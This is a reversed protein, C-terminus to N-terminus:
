VMCFIEKDVINSYNNEYFKKDEFDKDLVLKDGEMYYFFVGGRLLDDWTYRVAGEPNSRALALAQEQTAAIVLLPNQGALNVARLAYIKEKDVLRPAAVMYSTGVKSLIPYNGNADWVSNPWMKKLQIWLQNAAVMRLLHVSDWMRYRANLIEAGKKGLTYLPPCRDSTYEDLYGKAALRKLVRATNACGTIVSILHRSLVGCQGIATLIRAGSEEVIFRGSYYGPRCKFEVGSGNFPGM